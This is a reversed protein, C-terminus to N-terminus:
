FIHCVMSLTYIKFKLSNHPIWCVDLVLKTSISMCTQNTQTISSGVKKEFSYVTKPWSFALSFFPKESNSPKAHKHIM